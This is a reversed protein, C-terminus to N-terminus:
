KMGSLFENQQVNTVMAMTANMIFCRDRARDWTYLTNNIYYCIDGHIAWDKPCHYAGVVIFTGISVM